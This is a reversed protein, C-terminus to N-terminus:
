CRIEHERKIKVRALPKVLMSVKKLRMFVSFNKLRTKVPNEAQFRDAPQEGRPRLPGCLNAERM